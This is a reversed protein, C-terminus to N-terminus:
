PQEQPRNAEEPNDIALTDIWALMEARALKYAGTIGTSNPHRRFHALYKQHEAEVQERLQQLKDM